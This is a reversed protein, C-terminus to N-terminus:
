QKNRRYYLMFGVFAMLLPLLWVYLYYIWELDVDRYDIKTDAVYRREPNIPAEGYVMWNMGMVGLGALNIRIGPYQTSLGMNSLWEADGTVM